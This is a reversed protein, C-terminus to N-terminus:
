APQLQFTGSDSAHGSQCRIQLKPPLETHEGQVPTRRSVNYIFPASSRQMRLSQRLLASQRASAPTPPTSRRSHLNERRRESQRASAPTPPTSRRSRRNERKDESQRASARTPTSRQSRRNEQRRESQPALARTPPTLRQSHRNEQKDKRVGDAHSATQVASPTGAFTGTTPHPAITRECQQM